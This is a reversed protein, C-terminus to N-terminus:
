IVEKNLLLVKNKSLILLISLSKFGFVLGSMENIVLFGHMLAMIMVCNPNSVKNM